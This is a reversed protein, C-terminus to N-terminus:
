PTADGVTNKCWWSLHPGGFVEDCVQEGDPTATDPGADADAGDVGTGAAVAGAGLAVASVVVFM